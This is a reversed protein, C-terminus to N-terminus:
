ARRAEILSLGDSTVSTKTVSLGASALLAAMEERTRVRGGTITMMHLDLMIAAPDDSAREPMLREIVVLKAAPGMADRRAELITRAQGDDHQQLVAKLLYIDAEGPIAELRDGGISAVTTGDSMELAELIADGQASEEKALYSRFAAGEETNARRWEAVPLGFVKPFSPEGTKLCHPLELWPQWYQDLVVLAKERLSSQAGPALSQGAATLGFRGDALEECIRMAVLGRLFRRLHPASLGLEGALDESARPDASLADPIGAKVAAFVLAAEHYAGIQRRLHDEVEAQERQDM